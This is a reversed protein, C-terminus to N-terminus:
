LKKFTVVGKAIDGVEVEQEFITSLLDVAQPRAIWPWACTPPLRGYRSMGPSM